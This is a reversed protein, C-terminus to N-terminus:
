VSGGQDNNLQKAIKATYRQLSSKTIGRDAGFRERIMVVLEAITYYRDLSLLFNKIDVDKDVRSRRHREFLIPNPAIKWPKALEKRRQNLTIISMVGSLINISKVFNDQPLLEVIREACAMIGDIEDDMIQEIDTRM